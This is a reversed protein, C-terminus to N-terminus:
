RMMSRIFSYLQELLAGNYRFAALAYQALFPLAVIAAVFGIATKVPFGVSFLNFQQVARNALALAADTVFIAVLVPTAVQAGTIFMWAFSQLVTAGVNRGFVVMGVPAMTFSDGLAKCVALHGDTGLFVLAVLAYYFQGFLPVRGAGAMDLVEAMGLGMPAEVFQGATQAATFVLRVIYGMGFGVLLEAAFLAARQLLTLNGLVGFQPAFLVTFLLAMGVRIHAPGRREGFLPMTVVLGLVRAFVPLAALVTEVANESLWTTNM